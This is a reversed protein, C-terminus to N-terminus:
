PKIVEKNCKVINEGEQARILHDGRPVKKKKKPLDWKVRFSSFSTEFSSYLVEYFNELWFIELWSKVIADKWRVLEESFGLWVILRFASVEIGLLNSSEQEVTELSNFYYLERPYRIWRRPCSSTYSLVIYHSFLHVLKKAFIAHEMVIRKKNLWNAYYYTGRADSNFQAKSFHHVTRFLRWTKISCRSFFLKDSKLFRRCCHPKSSM